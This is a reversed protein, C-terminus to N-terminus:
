SVLFYPVLTIALGVITERHGCLVKHHDSMALIDKRENTSYNVWSM